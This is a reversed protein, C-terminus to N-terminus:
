IEQPEHQYYANLIKLVVCAAGIRDKNASSCSFFLCGLGVAALCIGPVIVIMIFGCKDKKKKKAEGYLKRSRLEGVLSQVWAM